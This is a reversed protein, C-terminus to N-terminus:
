QLPVARHVLVANQRRDFMEEVPRMIYHISFVLMLIVSYKCVDM